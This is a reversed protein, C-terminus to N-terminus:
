LFFSKFSSFCFTSVLFVTVDSEKSPRKTCGFVSCSKKTNLFTVIFKSESDSNVDLSMNIGLTFPAERFSYTIKMLLRLIVYGM